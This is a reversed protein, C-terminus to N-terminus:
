LAPAEHPRLSMFTPAMCDGPTPPDSAPPGLSPASRAPQRKSVPALLNLFLGFTPQYFSISPPFAWIFTAPKPEELFKSEIFTFVLHSTNLLSTNLLSTNLLNTNLLLLRPLIWVAVERTAWNTFFRGAICSIQTQVWPHSSGRAVAYEPRSFGMSLPAHCAVTWTTASLWVCSLLQTVSCLLIKFCTNKIRLPM